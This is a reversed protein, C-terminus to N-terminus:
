NSRDAITGASISVQSWMAFSNAPLRYPAPPTHTMEWVGACHLIVLGQARAEARLMKGVRAAGAPRYSNGGCLPCGRREM